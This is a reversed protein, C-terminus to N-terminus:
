KKPHPKTHTPSKTPTLTTMPLTAGKATQPKALPPSPPINALTSYYSLYFHASKGGAEEGLRAGTYESELVWAAAFNRFNNHFNKRERHPFHERWATEINELSSNFIDVGGTNILSTLFAKEAKGWYKTTPQSPPNDPMSSAADAASQTKNIQIDKKKVTVRSASLPLSRALLCALRVLWAWCICMM